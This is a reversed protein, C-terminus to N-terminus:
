EVRTKCCKPASSKKVLVDHAKINTKVQEGSAPNRSSITAEDIHKLNISGNFTETPLFKFSNMGEEANGKMYETILSSVVPYMAESQKKTFQVTNAYNEAQADDVGNDTLPKKIFQKRFEKVYPIEESILEGKKSKSVKATKEVDNLVDRTYEAFRTASFAVVKKKKLEKM